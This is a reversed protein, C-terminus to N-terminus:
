QNRQIWNNKRREAREIETPPTEDKKKKFQNTLVITDEVYYFFLIRNHNIRLQWIGDTGKLKKIDKRKIKGSKIYEGNEELYVLMEITKRYTASERSKILQIWDFVPQRGRSDTYFHIKM